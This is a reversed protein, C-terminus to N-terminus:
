NRKGNTGVRSVVISFILAMRFSSSIRIQNGTKSLRVSLRYLFPVAECFMFCNGKQKLWIPIKESQRHPLSDSYFHQLSDSLVFCKLAHKLLKEFIQNKIVQLFLFKMLKKQFFCNSSIRCLDSHNRITIGMIRFTQQPRTFIGSLLGNPPMIM